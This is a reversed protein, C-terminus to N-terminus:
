DREQENQQELNVSGKDKVENVLDRKQELTMNRTAKEAKSVKEGAKMVEDLRASQANQESLQYIQTESKNTVKSSEEYKAFLNINEMVMSINGTTEWGVFTYEIGNESAKEPHKGQYKVSEGKDVEQKDLVTERNEDYFTVTFKDSM